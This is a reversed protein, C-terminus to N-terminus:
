IQEGQAREGTVSQIWRRTEERNGRFVIRSSKKQLQYEYMPDYYDTLLEEIWNRHADIGQGNRQQRLADELILSIRQYRELGLRKRIRFLADTLSEAFLEEAQEPASNRFDQYNSQIYDLHITDIRQQLTEELMAIPSQLMRQHLELPISLSGIARSEDELVVRRHDSWDLHLLDVGLANEFDIQAPQPVVRKGFASGRHNALGELDLSNGLDNIFHTKGSGTKGAVIVLNEGSALDTITELLFQRLAKFGGDIRPIHIGHDALWQQVTSSRLGGRWCYLAASSNQAIFERWQHLLSERAIEDVLEYGLAIAAERGQQRYCTGIRQRQPDTLLPINTATPLAGRQFEVPSRVDLLATRNRLLDAFSDAKILETM